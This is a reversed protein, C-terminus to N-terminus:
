KRNEVSGLRGGKKYLLPQGSWVKELISEGVSLERGPDCGPFNWLFHHWDV